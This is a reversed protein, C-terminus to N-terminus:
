QTAEEEPFAAVRQILLPCQAHRLVKETVSGLLWRDLGSRGHTTMALLDVDEEELADLISGAEIGFAAQTRVKVGAAALRDAHPKLSEEVKEPTVILPVAHVPYDAAMPGSWAVRLLIVEANHLGAVHEVLPLIAASRDSGDLPLLIRKFEPVEKLEGEVAKAMLVPVPCRRLVREAVSGRIWRALGSRGHTTLALLSPQEEEVVRLIGDAPDGEVLRGRASIGEEGLKAVMRDLYAQAGDKHEQLARADDEPPVVRLLVVEADESHLLRRVYALIGEALESGDLAAVISNIVEVQAV